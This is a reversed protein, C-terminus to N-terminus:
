KADWPSPMHYPVDIFIAEVAAIEGDVIKFAELLNYSHPFHYFSKVPTGDTWTFNRLKGMHDIFGGALVVGKDEDVLPFRRARLRDDYRYQGLAFQKECGYEAIPYNPFAAANRTTQLGNEVRDCDDSFKTFIKGDNLEITNFYGDSLAIMRERPVRKAKPVDALMIARPTVYTDFSPFPSNEVKRTVIQEAESIKGGEIRLRLAMIAPNGAEEVVGFWAVQGTVPDAFKLDYGRRADVTNWSGDGVALQVNNDTFVAHAAWPLRSPDKKVLADLYADAHKVLCARDCTPAKNSNMREKAALPAALAALALVIWFRM